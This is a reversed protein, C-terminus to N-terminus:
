QKRIFDQAAAILWKEHYQQTLYASINEPGREMNRKMAVDLDCTLFEGNVSYGAAKVAEVVAVISEESDGIMETVINQRGEIARRAAERGIYDMEAELHSPFNYQEGLSLLLFIEGADITVYGSPFKDRRFRTKGSAVGGCILVFEPKPNMEENASRKVHAAAM